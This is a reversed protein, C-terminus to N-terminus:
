DNSSSRPRGDAGQSDSPSQAKADTTIASMQCHVGKMKMRASAARWDSGFDAISAARM